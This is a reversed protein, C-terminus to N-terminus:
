SMCNRFSHYRGHHYILADSYFLKNNDFTNLFKILEEEAESHNYIIIMASKGPNWPNRYKIFAFYDGPYEQNDYVIRSPELGNLGTGDLVKQQFPSINRADVLQIFNCEKLDAPNVENEFLAQYNYNRIREKLPNQLLYFIKRAFAKKSQEQYSDAKIILCRNLYLEKLGLRDWDISIRGYESEFEPKSLSTADVQLDGSLTVMLMVRGDLNIARKQGNVTLEVQRGLGLEGRSLLMSFCRINDTEVVISQKSRVEARITAKHELSEMCNVKLWYSKNYVPEYVTFQLKRPMTPRRRRSLTEAVKVNNFLDSFEMHDFDSFTADKVSQIDRLIGSNRVFHFADDEFLDLNYVFTHAMNKLYEYDPNRLDMRITGTISALGAFLDPFRLALGYAEFAAVCAGIISIRKRDINFDKVVQSIVRILNAEYLYDQNLEGRGCIDMMIMNRFQRKRTYDFPRPYRSIAYGYQASIVLPYKRNPHYGQPLTIRYSLFNDDMGMGAFCTASSNCIDLLSRGALSSSDLFREFELYKTLWLETIDENLTDGIDRYVDPIELIKKFMELLLRNESQGLDLDAEAKKLLDDQNAKYDGRYIYLTATKKAAKLGNAEIQLLGENAEGMDLIVMQSTTTNLTQLVENKSNTIRICVAEKHYTMYKPLVQFRIEEMANFIVKEPIIRFSNKFDAFFNRDLYPMLKNKYFYQLPKVVVRFPHNVHKADLFREVLISNNGKKLKVSVFSPQINYSFSSSIIIEGNVWVRGYQTLSQYFFLVDRPKDSYVNSLAYVYKAPNAEFMKEPFNTNYFSVSEESIMYRWNSELEGQPLVLENRLIIRGSTNLFPSVEKAKGPDVPVGTVMWRNLVIPKDGPFSVPYHTTTIIKELYDAITM